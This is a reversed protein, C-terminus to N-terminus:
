FGGSHLWAKNIKPTAFGYQKQRKNKDFFPFDKKKYLTSVCFHLHIANTDKIYFQVFFLENIIPITSKPTQRGKAYIFALFRKTICQILRKSLKNDQDIERIVEKQDDVEQDNM